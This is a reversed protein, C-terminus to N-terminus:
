LKEHTFPLSFPPPWVEPFAHTDVLKIFEEDITWDRRDVMQRGAARWCARESLPGAAGVPAAQWTTENSPVNVMAEPGM